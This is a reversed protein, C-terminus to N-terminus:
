SKVDGDLKWKNLASPTPGRAWVRGCTRARQMPMIIAYTRLAFCCFPKAMTKGHITTFVQFVIALASTKEVRMGRVAM